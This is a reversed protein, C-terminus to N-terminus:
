KSLVKPALIFRFPGDPTISAPMDDAVALRVTGTPRIAATVDQLYSESLTLEARNGDVDAAVNWSHPYRDEERAKGELLVSENETTFRVTRYAAGSVAGVAGKFKMADMEVVTGLDHTPWKPEDRMSEPDKCDVYNMFSGSAVTFQNEGDEFGVEITEEEHVSRVGELLQGTDVGVTIPGSGSKWHFETVEVDVLLCKGPEVVRARLANEAFHFRCKDVVADLAIIADLFERADITAKAKEDPVSLTPRPTEATASM